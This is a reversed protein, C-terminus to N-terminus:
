SKTLLPRVITTPSPSDAPTTTQPQDLTSSIKKTPQQPADAKRWTLLKMAAEITWDKSM